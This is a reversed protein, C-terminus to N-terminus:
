CQLDGTIQPFPHPLRHVVDGLQGGADGKLWGVAGTAVEHGYVAAGSTRALHTHPAPLLQEEHVGGAELPQVFEQM